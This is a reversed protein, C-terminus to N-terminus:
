RIVGLYASNAACSFDLKGTTCGGASITITFPNASLYAHNSAADTVTISLGSYTGPTTPTGSLVGTSTNFNIGPPRTGTQAFTYPTTGGTTTPTFSYATGVTGTSPPTGTITLGGCAHVYDRISSHSECGHVYDRIGASAPLSLGYLVMAIAAWACLRKLIM